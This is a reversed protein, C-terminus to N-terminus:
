KEHGVEGLGLNKLELRQAESLVQFPASSTASKGAHLDTVTMILCYEGPALDTVPVRTGRPARGGNVELGAPPFTVDLYNGRDLESDAQLADSAAVEVVRSAPEEGLHVLRDYGQVWASPLITYRTEVFAMGSKVTLGYIEYFLNLQREDDVVRLPNPIYRSGLRTVASPIDRSEPRLTLDLDSIIPVSAPDFRRVEMPGTYVGHHKLKRDEVYGMVTYRGPNLEWLQNLLLVDVEGKFMPVVDELAVRHKVQRVVTRTTDRVVIEMSIDDLWRGDGLPRWLPIGLYVNIRDRGPEGIIGVATLSLFRLQGPPAEHFVVPAARRLVSAQKATADDALFDGNLNRDEFRLSMNLGRFRYNWTLAPPSLSIHTGTYTVSVIVEGPDFDYSQPAGYSVFATGAETDWGRRKKDPQGFLFEAMALRKWIELHNENLDTLPSPDHHRWYIRDYAVRSSDDRTELAKLAAPPATWRATSFASRVDEPAISLAAQFETAAAENQGADMFHVALLLHAALDHPLREVIRRAQAMGKMTMAPSEKQPLGAALCHALSSLFLAERNDPELELAPRLSELMRRTLSVDYHYLLEDLWFRAIRIRPEVEQPELELLRELCHRAQSAQQCAEYIAARDRHYRAQNDYVHRIDDLLQLAQTRDEITGMAALALALEYKLSDNGADQRLASLAGKRRAAAAADTGATAARTSQTVLLCDM